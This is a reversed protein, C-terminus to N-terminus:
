IFWPNQIKDSIFELHCKFYFYSYNIVEGEM